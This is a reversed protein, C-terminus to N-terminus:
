YPVRYYVKMEWQCGPLPAVDLHNSYSKHCSSETCKKLLMRCKALFFVGESFNDRAQCTLIASNVIFVGEGGAASLSM